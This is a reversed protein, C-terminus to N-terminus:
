PRAVATVGAVGAMGALSKEVQPYTGTDALKLYFAEPLEALDGGGFPMMWEAHDRVKAAHAPDEVYIKEVGPLARIRDLVAEKESETARARGECRKAFRHAADEPCLTVSVDAKGWWFNDRHTDVVGVGPLDALERLLARWDGRALTGGYAVDPMNDVTILEGVRYDQRAIALAEERTRRGYSTIEPLSALAREIGRTEEVTAAGGGECREWGRASDDECLFILFTGTEPWPGAPPPLLPMHRSYAVVGAILLGVPVVVAIPKWM